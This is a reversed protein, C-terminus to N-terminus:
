GACQPNIGEPDLSRLIELWKILALSSVKVSFGDNLFAEWYRRQRFGAVPKKLPLCSLGPFVEVMNIFRIIGQKSKCPKPLILFMVRLAIAPSVGSPQNNNLRV